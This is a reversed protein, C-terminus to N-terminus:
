RTDSGVSAHLLFRVKAISASDLRTDNGKNHGTLFDTLFLSSRRRLLLESFGRGGDIISKM